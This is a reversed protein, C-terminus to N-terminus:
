WGGPVHRELVDVFHAPSGVMYKHANQTHLKEINDAWKKAHDPLNEKWAGMWREINYLPENLGYSCRKLAYLELFWYPAGIMDEDTANDWVDGKPPENVICDPVNFHKALQYVESKHLDAIPQLDVMGDSAKGFFGIYSGEDRNTTGAVLSKFGNQQLIAAQYYLMPTRVVSALQGKSWANSYTDDSKLFEDYAHTLDLIKYEFKPNDKHRSVLELGRELSERQGSTGHGYIPMLLATVNKIPSSEPKAAGLFLELAVASDIGGSIGLVVSDLNNSTFFDFLKLCKQELYSHVCLSNSLHRNKRLRNLESELHIEKVAETQTIPSM